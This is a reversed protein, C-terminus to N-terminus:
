APVLAAWARQKIRDTDVRHFREADPREPEDTITFDFPMSLTSYLDTDDSRTAAEWSSISIEGDVLLVTVFLGRDYYAWERLVSSNGGPAHKWAHLLHSAQEVDLLWGTGHIETDPRPHAIPVAACLPYGSISLAM